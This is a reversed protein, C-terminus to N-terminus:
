VVRRDAAGDAGGDAGGLVSEDRVGSPGGGSDTCRSNISAAPPTHPPTGEHEETVRFMVSPARPAPPLPACGNASPAEPAGGGANADDDLFVQLLGATSTATGAGIKAKRGRLNRRLNMRGAFDDYAVMFSSRRRHLARPPRGAAALAAQRAAIARPKIYRQNVIRAVIVLVVYVVYMGVMAGSEGPTIKGDWISGTLLLVAALYFTIDRLMPRRRPSFPKIIAVSGLVGTTILMGGGLLSGVGVAGSHSRFAAFLTFFEPAGNGLALLTVGAVEPSLKMRDSLRELSPVIYEDATSSIVAFLFWIWLCALFPLLWPACHVMNCYHWTTYPIIAGDFAEAACACKDKVHEWDDPDCEDSASRAVPAVAALLVVLTGLPRM